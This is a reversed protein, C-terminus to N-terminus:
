ESLIQKIIINKGHSIFGVKNGNLAKNKTYYIIKDNIFTFINGDHPNFYIGIKYTNYKNYNKIYKISKNTNSILNKYLGNKNLILTLNGKENVQFFYYNNMDELNNLGFILGYNSDSNPTIFTYFFNTISTNIIKNIIFIDESESIIKDGYTSIEGKEIYYSEKLKENYISPEDYLPIESYKITNESSVTFIINDTIMLGNWISLDGIPSNNNNCLAYFSNKNILEIPIGPKSIMIKMISHSDKNYGYNFSDEDTQFSVILQNNDNCVIFPAESRSNNNKSIYIEVPNSWNIGDRSYSLLIETRKYESLYKGTLLHYDRNRYTGEFILVHTGDKMTTAVPMGEKSIRKELGSDTPSKKISGDIVIKREESWKLNDQDFEQSYINRVMFNYFPEDGITHNIMPTFDDAYFVTIKNNINFVFPEFFGIRVDNEVAEIAEEKTKGLKESLIFNDIISGINEWTYGGDHSISSGIKRNYKIDINPNDSKGIARFSAIIDHNPLEFLNINSCIHEPFKSIESPLTWSLGQNKSIRAGVSNGFNNGLLWYNNWYSSLKILRPYGSCKLEGLSKFNFEGILKNCEECKSGYISHFHTKDIEIWNKRNLDSYYKVFNGFEKEFTTEEKTHKDKKMKQFKAYFNNGYHKGISMKIGEDKETPFKLTEGYKIVNKFNKSIYNDNYFINEKITSLKNNKLSYYSAICQILIVSIKFIFLIAPILSQEFLIIM